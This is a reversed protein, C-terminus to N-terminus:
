LPPRPPGPMPVRRPTRHAAATAAASTSVAQLPPSGDAVSPGCLALLAAVVEALGPAALPVGVGAPEALAVAEGVVAVGVVVM